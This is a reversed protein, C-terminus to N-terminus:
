PSTLVQLPNDYRRIKAIKGARMEIVDVVTMRLLRDRELPIWGIAAEQAGVISYEVIVWGKIGWINDVSTDLEGIAKRIARYYARQPDKGRQVDALEPLSVEVDDTLAGLYGAENGGRMESLQSLWARVQEVDSAEDSSRMQEVVVGQAPSPAAPTPLGALEKPGSGLQAKVVAEDFTVHVDTISGDDNTGLLSIGRFVVTKQTPPIGLWAKTQVGTMTWEIAQSSDTLWVRSAVFRRQDFPGFMTEHAEVVKDRGHADKMGAFASHADENLLPGLASFGPSGLAKEYNSAAARELDTAKLPGADLSM